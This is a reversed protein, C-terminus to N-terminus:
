AEATAKKPTTQQERKKLIILKRQVRKLRKNLARLSDDGEPNESATRRELVKKQLIQKDEDLSRSKAM